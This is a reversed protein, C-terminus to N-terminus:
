KWSFTYVCVDNPGYDEVLRVLCVTKWDGGKTKVHVDKGVLEAGRGGCRVTVTNKTDFKAEIRSEFANAGTM